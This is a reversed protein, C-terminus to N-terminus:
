KVLVALNNMIYVFSILEASSIVAFRLHNSDVAEVFQFALLSVLFIIAFSM